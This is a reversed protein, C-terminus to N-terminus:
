AGMWEELLGCEAHVGEDVEGFWRGEWVVVGGEGGGERWGGDVSWGGGGVWVARGVDGAAGAEGGM